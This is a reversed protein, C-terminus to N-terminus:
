EENPDEPPKSQGSFKFFAFAAIALILFPAIWLPMTASDVPPKYLVFESYRDVMYQKIQEESEGARLKEAIVARMSSSIESNSDALNQNQCKPCRLQETLSRYKLRQEDNDFEYYEISGQASVLVSVILLLSALYIRTLM